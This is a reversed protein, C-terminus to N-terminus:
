RWFVAQTLQRIFPTSIQSFIYLIISKPLIEARFDVAGVFEFENQLGFLPSLTSLKYTIAAVDIVLCNFNLKPLKFGFLRKNGVLFQGRLQNAPFFVIGTKKTTQIM